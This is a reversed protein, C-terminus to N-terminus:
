DAVFECRRNAAWATENHSPDAPREKGYSITFLRKENVGLSAIYRKASEARREGLALNYEVTGREDCHGELTIHVSPNAKLWEANTVMTARAADTLKSSDFDFYIHDLAAVPADVSEEALSSPASTEVPTWASSTEPAAPAEIREETMVAGDDDSPPKKHCGTAAIALLALTLIASIWHAHKM